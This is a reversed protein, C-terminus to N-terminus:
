GAGGATSPPTPRRRLAARVTEADGVCRVVVSPLLVGRGQVVLPEAQEYWRDFDPDIAPAEAPVTPKPTKLEPATIGTSKM